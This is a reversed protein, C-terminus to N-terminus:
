RWFVMALAAVAVTVVLLLRWLTPPGEQSADGRRVDGPDSLAAETLEDVPDRPRLPEPEETM